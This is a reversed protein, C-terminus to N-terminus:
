LGKLNKGPVIEPQVYFVKYPKGLKKMYDIMHRTGSSKGDWIAVLGDAYDGMKINRVSGARKGESNWDAPFSKVPIGNQEAWYRGLRDPGRAEGCVVETVEFDSHEIAFSVNRYLNINRSGAVIIKL